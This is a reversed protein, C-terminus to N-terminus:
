IIKEINFGHIYQSIGFTMTVGLEVTGEAKYVMTKVESIAERVKEIDKIAVDENKRLIILFEEGGWRCLISNDPLNERIATSVMRLVDDGVNHGYIDNVKKFNDIDGIAISFLEGTKKVVDCATELCENMSRRNLLGTLPDISSSDALEKNKEELVKERQQIELSFLTSFCVIALFSIVSNFIYAARIANYSMLNAYPPEIFDTLMRTVTFIFMSLASFVMPKLLSRRQGPLAYILFYCVPCIAVVFTMFGLDYGCLFTALLCHLIVEAYCICFTLFFNGKKILQSPEFFYFLTSLVNYLSLYYIGLHYFYGAFILHVIGLLLIIATFKDKISPVKKGEFFDKLTNIFVLKEKVKTEWCYRLVM